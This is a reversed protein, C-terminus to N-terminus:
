FYLYNGKKHIVIKFSLDEPDNMECRPVRWDTKSGIHLANNQAHSCLSVSGFLVYIIASEEVARQEKRGACNNSSSRM